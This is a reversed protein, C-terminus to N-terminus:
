KGNKNRIFIGVELDQTECCFFVETGSHVKELREGRKNELSYDTKQLQPRQMGPLILEITDSAAWQSKVSIKWVGQRIKEDIRGVIQPRNPNPQALIKSESLFFGTGLPRTTTKTLETMYEPLNFNQEAQIHDLATRYVDVVPALYSSTKMRGEIKLSHIGLNTLEPLYPLLCLDEASFFHTFDGNQIVKWIEKNRQKEEVWLETPRYDFRCPHSCEGLNAARGNLYFSLLCRGSIAMCMAGHVFIELEMDPAAKRVAALAERDLERALNVRNIGLEKWFRVSESNSTNAQTSLHVPIQPTIKQALRLVGPDAIILGDVGIDTLMELEARVRDLHQEWALINLAYYIKIQREHALEIALRLDEISFGTSATRLSLENGGLYVANAGYYLATKLKEMNGAPVLLEPIHIM